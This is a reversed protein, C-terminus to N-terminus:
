SLVGKRKFVDWATSPKTFAVQYNGGSGFAIATREFVVGSSITSRNRVTGSNTLEVIRNSFDNTQFYSVAFATGDRKCSVDPAIEFNTTNAVTIVTGLAGTNSIRRAIIDDDSGVLQNWVVMTNANNDMSIRPNVQKATGNAVAHTNVVSATASFRRVLVDGNSNSSSYSIAFRGDPAMAVDPYTENLFPSSSVILSNLSLGADNFRRALVDSDSSTFDQQYGIVFTGNNAIAVSPTTENKTSTTVNIVSGRSAGASTFRLAKIDENSSTVQDVWTVVFSGDSKMAVDPLSERRGSNAVRIENGAKNGASDFRQAYIDTDSSSFVHTWVAVSRGDSASAFAVQSQNQVITANIRLGGAVLALLERQELRDFQLNNKVRKSSARQRSKRASNNWFLNLSRFM